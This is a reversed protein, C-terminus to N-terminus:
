KPRLPVVRRALGAVPSCERLMQRPCNAAVRVGGDSETVDRAAMHRAEIGACLRYRGWRRVVQHLVKREAQFKAQVSPFLPDMQAVALAPKRTRWRGNGSVDRRQRRHLTPQVDVREPHLAFRRHVVGLRQLRRNITMWYQEKRAAHISYATWQHQLGVGHQDSQIWACRLDRQDAARRCKGAFAIGNAHNGGWM